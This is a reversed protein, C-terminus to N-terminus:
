CLDDYITVVLGKVDALRIGEEGVVLAAGLRVGADLARDDPDRARAPRTSSPSARPM